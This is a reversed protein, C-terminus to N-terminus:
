SQHPGNNAKGIIFPLTMVCPVDHDTTCLYIESHLQKQVHHTVQRKKLRLNSIKYILERIQECKM